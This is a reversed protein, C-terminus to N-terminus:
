NKLNYNLYLDNEGMERFDDLVESAQQLGGEPIKNSSGKWVNEILILKASKTIHFNVSPSYSNNGIWILSVPQSGTCTIERQEPAQYYQLCLAAVRGKYNDITILPNLATQVKVGAISVHGGTHNDNGEVSFYRDASEMYFNTVVLNQNNRVLIGYDVNTALNAQIGIFGDRITESSGEVTIMGEWHYNILIKARSSNIVRINGNIHDM